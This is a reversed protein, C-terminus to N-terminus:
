GGVDDIEDILERIREISFTTDAMQALTEENPILTDGHINYYYRMDRYHRDIGELDIHLGYEPGNPLEDVIVNALHGLPANPYVMKYLEITCYERHRENSRCECFFNVKSVNVEFCVPCKADFYVDLPFRQCQLPLRCRCLSCLVEQAM